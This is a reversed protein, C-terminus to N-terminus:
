LLDINAIAGGNERLVEIFVSRELTLITLIDAISKYSFKVFHTM